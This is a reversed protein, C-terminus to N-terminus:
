AQIAYTCVGAIVCVSFFRLVVWCVFGFSYFKKISKKLFLVCRNNNKRGEMNNKHLQLISCLYMENLSCVAQFFAM